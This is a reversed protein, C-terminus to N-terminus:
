YSGPPLQARVPREETLEGLWQVLDDVVHHVSDGEPPNRDWDNESRVWVTTMGMSAAPALNRALDEVMVTDPPNLRYHRVLSDFAKPDPKPVFDAHIRSGCATKMGATYYIDKLGVPVGHIPGKPGGQRLEDERRKAETLAEERDITVWAKLDKDTADIRELLSQALDVPSLKKDKIQQAAQSVTLEYPKPM